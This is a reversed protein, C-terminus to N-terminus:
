LFVQFKEKTVADILSMSKSAWTDLFWTDGCFIINNIPTHGVFVNRTRNPDFPIEYNGPRMRMLNEIAAHVLRRSWILRAFGPDEGNIATNLMNQFYEESWGAPMEAHVVRFAHEEDDEGVDIVWPMPRIVSKLWEVNRGHRKLDGLCQMGGNDVWTEYWESTLMMHEHNGKVAYCREQLFFDVVKVSDPGRDILDGVSYVIDRAPDYNAKELLRMFLDYRGHIDGVILHRDDDLTLKLTHDIM